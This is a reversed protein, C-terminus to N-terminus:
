SEKFSWGCAPCKSVRDPMKAGCQLCNSDEDSAALAPTTSKDGAAFITGPVNLRRLTRVGLWAGGGGVVVLLPLVLFFFRQARWATVDADQRELLKTLATVEANWKDWQDQPRREDLLLQAADTVRDSPGMKNAQLQQTLAAGTAGHMMLVLQHVEVARVYTSPEPAFITSWLLWLGSVVGAAALVLLSM